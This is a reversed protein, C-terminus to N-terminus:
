AYEFNDLIKFLQLQQIAFKMDNLYIKSKLDKSTFDRSSLFRTIKDHSKQNNLIKSIGRSIVLSTSTILYYTYLYLLNNDM